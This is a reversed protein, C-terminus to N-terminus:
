AADQYSKNGWWTKRLSVRLPAAALGPHTWGSGLCHAAKEHHLRLAELAAAQWSSSGEVVPPWPYLDPRGAMSEQKVEFLICLNIFWLLLRPERLTLEFASSLKPHTHALSSLASIPHPCLAGCVEGPCECGGGKARNAVAAAYSRADLILLKRPQIALSEAGTTNSSSDLSMPLFPFCM